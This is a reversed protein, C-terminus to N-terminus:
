VACKPRASFIEGDLINVLASTFLYLSSVPLITFYNVFHQCEYCIARENAYSSSTERKSVSISLLWVTLLFVVESWSTKVQLDGDVLNVTAMWKREQRFTNEIVKPVLVSSRYCIFLVNGQLVKWWGRWKYLWLRIRAGKDHAYTKRACQLSGMEDGFVRM